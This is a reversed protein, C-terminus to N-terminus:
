HTRWVEEAKLFFSYPSLVAPYCAFLASSLSIKIGEEWSVVDGTVDCRTVMCCRCPGVAHGILSCTLFLVVM